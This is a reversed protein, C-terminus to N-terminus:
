EQESHIAPASQGAHQTQRHVFYVFAGGLIALMLLEYARLRKATRPDM